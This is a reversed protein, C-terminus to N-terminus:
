TSEPPRAASLAARSLLARRDVKGTAVRPLENLFIFRDPCKHRALHAHCHMRLDEADLAGRARVFAVPRAGFRQDPAAVVAAELVAPHRALVAEVEAPAIKAGGSNVVDDMRGTVRVAGTQSVEGADATRLRGGPAVPGRVVLRGDAETEVRAFALPPGVGDTEFAGPFWTAVQAATETMGWTLSLPLGLARARAVVAPPTPAGGVLVARVRASVRGGSAELTSCIEALMAPLLSVLTCRGEVLATAVFAADFGPALEVATAAFAARLLISLGGVAHLPLCALWRDDLAHGLRLTSGFAAFALQAATLELARPEATTGSTCIVLRPDELPWDPPEGTNVHAHVRILPALDAPCATESEIVSAPAAVDLAQAREDATARAALPVVVAGRWLLAHFALVWRADAPGVLAVRAGPSVSAFPARAALAAAGARVEAWTLTVESTVLANAEPRAMAAGWLPNPLSLV